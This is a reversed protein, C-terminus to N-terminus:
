KELKKIKTILEGPASTSCGQWYRGKFRYMVRTETKGKDSLTVEYRNEPNYRALVRQQNETRAEQTRAWYEHLGPIWEEPVNDFWEGIAKQLMASTLITGDHWASEVLKMYEFIDLDIKM